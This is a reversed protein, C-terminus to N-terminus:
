DEEYTLLVLVQNFRPQPFVEEWLEPDRHSKKFWHSAPTLRGQVPEATCLELNGLVEAAKSDSPPREEKKVTHVGSIALGESVAGWKIKGDVIMILSTSKPNLSVTRLAAATLSVKFDEAIKTIATFNPDPCRPQFLSEPMLLSSAFWDAEQEMLDNSVFGAHSSHAAKGFRIAQNHEEILYHGLEHAFNFRGRYPDPNYFLHFKGNKFRLVGDCEGQLPNKRVIIWPDDKCWVMPDVPPNKIGERLVFSEAYKQIEKRRANLDNKATTKKM